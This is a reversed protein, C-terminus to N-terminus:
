KILAFDLVESIKNVLIFNIGEKIKSGIESLEPENKSP